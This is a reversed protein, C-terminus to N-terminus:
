TKWQKQEPSLNADKVKSFKDNELFILFFFFFFFFFIPKTEKNVKLNSVGDM